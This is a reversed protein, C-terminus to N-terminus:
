EIMYGGGPITKIVEKGLKKRLRAVHVKLSDSFLVDQDENGWVTEYIEQSNKAKGRNLILYEIIRYELPSLRVDEDNITIRKAVLDITIDAELYFKTSKDKSERRFLARIRALLEDMLFPKTLYDDAGFDLGQVKSELDIRATLMLIPTDIGKRRLEECVDLGDGDPLNLDLIIVNYNNVSAKYRGNEATFALDANYNEHRLVTAINEAMKKNDEVILINM